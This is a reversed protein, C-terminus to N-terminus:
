VKPYGGLLVYGINYPEMALLGTYRRMAVGDIAPELKGVISTDAPLDEFREAYDHVLDLVKYETNFSVRASINFLYPRFKTDLHTNIGGHSWSLNMNYPLGHRALSKRFYKENIWLERFRQLLWEAQKINAGWFDIQLTADVELSHVVGIPEGDVVNGSDIYESIGSLTEYYLDAVYSVKTGLPIYPYYELEFTITGRERDLVFHEGEQLVITTGDIKDIFVNKIRSIKPMIDAPIKIERGFLYGIFNDMYKKPMNEGMNHVTVEPLRLGRRQPIRVVGSSSISALDPNNPLNANEPIDAFPFGTSVQIPVRARGGDPAYQFVERLLSIWPEVITVHLM